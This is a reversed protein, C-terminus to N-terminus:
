WGTEDHAEPPKRDTYGEQARQGVEYRQSQAFNAREMLSMNGIMDSLASIDLLETYNDRARARAHFAYKLRTLWGTGLAQRAIQTPLNGQTMYEVGSMHYHYVLADFKENRERIHEPIHVSSGTALISQLEGLLRERSDEFEPRSLSFANPLNGQMLGVAVVGQEGSRKVEYQRLYIGNDDLLTITKGRSVERSPPNPSLEIAIEGFEDTACQWLASPQTEPLYDLISTAMREIDVCIEEYTRAERLKLRKEPNSTSM